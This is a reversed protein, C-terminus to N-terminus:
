TISVAYQCKPQHPCTDCSKKDSQAAIKEGIGVIGSCSKAPHMVGSSRYTIGLANDAALRFIARQGQELKWGADGPQLMAGAHEWGNELALKNLTRMVDGHLTRMCANGAADLAHTEGVRRGCANLASDFADGLTYLCIAARDAGKLECVDRELGLRVGHIFYEGDTRRGMEDDYVRFFARPSIVRLVRDLAWRARERLPAPADCARMPMGMALLVDDASVASLNFSYVFDKAGGTM